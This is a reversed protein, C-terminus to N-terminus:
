SRTALIKEEYFDGRQVFLSTVFPVSTQQNSLFIIMYILMKQLFLRSIKTLFFVRRLPGLNKIM